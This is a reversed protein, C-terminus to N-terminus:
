SFRMSQYSWKALKEAILGTDSFEGQWSDLQNGVASTESSRIFQIGHSRWVSNIRHSSRIFKIGNESKRILGRFQVVDGGDGCVSQCCCCFSGVAHIEGAVAEILQFAPFRVWIGVERPLVCM